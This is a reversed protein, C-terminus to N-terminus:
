KLTFSIEKFVNASEEDIIPQSDNKHKSSKKKKSAVEVWANEDANSEERSLREEEEKQKFEEVKKWAYDFPFEKLRYKEPTNEDINQSQSNTVIHAAEGKMHIKELMSTNTTLPDLRTIEFFLEEKTKVPVGNKEFFNTINECDRMLFDLASPHIPEVAQALDIVVCKGEHYLINYESFDAHILRADQYMKKMIDVVEDYAIIMDAANLKVDKLKPAPNEHGNGIYEMLLIHKKFVIAQPCLIGAKKLRNLNHFEKECWLNIINRSNQKLSGKFRFDDKIYRDRQKFENLTTSFIKVAVERTVKPYDLNDTNGEAHLVVAEKGKSIVGDISNLMMTTNIFKYLILRTKQDMGMESTKINETRDLSTQHSKKAMQNSYTRLENFVKNSIKMDFNGCDGCHLDSYFEMVKGANKRGSLETDHKTIFKGDNKELYGSKGISSLIKENEEFRDWNKMRRRDIEDEDEKDSDNLLEDSYLRYNVLSVSVKSNKNQKEEIRKIEEDHELDFEAQLLEAILRDDDGNLSSKNENPIDCSDIFDATKSSCPQDFISANGSSSAQQIQDKDIVEWSSDEEVANQVAIQKAFNFDEKIQKQIRHKESKEKKIIESLKLPEEVIQVSGWVSM